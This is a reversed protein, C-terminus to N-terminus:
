PHGVEEGKPETRTSFFSGYLRTASSIFAAEADEITTFTGLHTNRVQAIYRNGKRYVGRPLDRKSIVRNVNNQSQTCLRLNEIRNDSRDGNIHDIQMNSPPWEGYCLLWAVRHVLYKRRGIRMMRYGRPHPHSPDRGDLRLVKGSPDYRYRRRVREYSAAM